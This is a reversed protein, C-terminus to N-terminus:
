ALTIAFLVPNVPSKVLMKYLYTLLEVKNVKKQNPPMGPSNAQGWSVDNKGLKGAGQIVDNKHL